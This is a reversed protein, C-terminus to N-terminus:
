RGGGYGNGGHMKAYRECQNENNFGLRYWNHQKCQDKRKPAATGTYRVCQDKDSFGLKDWNATRKAQHVWHGTWFYTHHHWQHREWKWVWRYTTTTGYCQSTSSPKAVDFYDPTASVATTTAIIAVMLIAAFGIVVKNSGLKGLFSQFSAM